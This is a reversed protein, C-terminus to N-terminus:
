LFLRIDSRAVHPSELLSMYIINFAAVAINGKYGSEAVIRSEYRNGSWRAAVFEKGQVIGGGVGGTSRGYRELGGGPDKRKTAQRNSAGAFQSTTRQM